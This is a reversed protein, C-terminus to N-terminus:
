LGICGGQSHPGDQANNSDCVVVREALGEVLCCFEETEGIGAARLDLALRRGPAETDFDAGEIRRGVAALRVAFQDQM